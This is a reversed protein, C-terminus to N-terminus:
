RGQFRTIADNVIVGERIEIAARLTRNSEWATPGGLADEIFPLLAESIEWSAANWLYSPSHDVGYYNVGNGMKIMPAEFTTPRAFSFGMGDDCSVDIMLSGPRFRELDEDNLFMLPSNPDQLTCNVVLDHEALYPALAVPGDDTLVERQALNRAHRRGPGPMPEIDPLEIQVMRASPIPSGVAAVGRHTLVVVDHIGLANLATVAGRATAGFGIVVASLRRGYDGTSGILQLAHMVSCYGALENNKHFVHLGFSGSSTWHNMAEFAILTLRKEIAIDTMVRDQVCHPWGWVTQGDRLGRMDDHQPKPLLITDAADIVGQRSTVTGVLLRLADDTLGFDRGYGQEVVFRSRLAPDIREFHDPHIPIRRENEMSSSALIGLRQTAGFSPPTALSHVAASPDNPASHLVTNSPM